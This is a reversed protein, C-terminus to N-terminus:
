QLNHKWGGYSTQSDDPDVLIGCMKENSALQRLRYGPWPFSNRGRSWASARAQFFYEAIGQEKTWTLVDYSGYVGIRYPVPTDGLRRRDITYRDYGDKNFACYGDAKGQSYSFYSPDDAAGDEWISVIYLGAKSIAEAEERTLAKWTYRVAYYRGVFAKGEKKLCDLVRSVKTATHIGYPM